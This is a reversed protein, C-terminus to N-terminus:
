VINSTMILVIVLIPLECPIMSSPRQHVEGPELDAVLHVEGHVLAACNVQRRDLWHDPPGVVHEDIEIVRRGNGM